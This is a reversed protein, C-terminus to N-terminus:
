VLSIISNVAEQTMLDNEVFYEYYELMAPAIPNVGKSATDDRSAELINLFSHVTTDTTRNEELAIRTALPLITMYEAYAMYYSEDLMVNYFVTNDNTNVWLEAKNGKVMAPADVLAVPYGRDRQEATLKAPQYHIASVRGFGTDTVSEAFVYVNQTM